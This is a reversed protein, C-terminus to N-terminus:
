RACEPVGLRKAAAGAEQGLARLKPQAATLVQRPDKGGKLEGILRRVEDAGRRSAALADDHARQLEDPPDLAALRDASRENTDLLRQFYDVIAATTSRTPQEVAKTAKATDTCIKRAQARYEAASLQGGGCGALLALLVLLPRRM